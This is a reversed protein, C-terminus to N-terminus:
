DTQVTLQNLTHEAAAFLRTKKSSDMKDLLKVMMSLRPNANFFNRHKDIFRWYLGDIADCWDGKKYHSMKLWYNSSCLYPKTAFIGGDSFLGMGFVNPGMVWDASDVFMEMFWRYAQQPHIECLLMVNGVIMLREIHHAYGYDLTKQLVDDLPPIGTNAQYWANSLHRQHQWFNSAYQEAGFHADIGKVFERWGILQRVFGEITNLPLGQELYADLVATLVQQPTLLGNNLYPSLLSHFLFPARTDIADQYDGFQALSSRVFYNLQEAAHTATTGLWFQSAHGPHDAFRQSVLTMVQQTIEDLSFNLPAPPQITKPLKNRNEADYSWHGGLPKQTDTLLINLRKRQQEYFTKLFPKKSSRLYQTFIADETLFMPSNHSHYIIKNQRCFAQLDEAMFRDEIAFSHLHTICQKHLSQRLCDFFPQCPESNDPLSYYDVHICLDRLAQQHHRMAALFFILKHQHYRFRTCLFDDEIMVVRMQPCISRALKAFFEAAFLHSGMLLWAHQSM